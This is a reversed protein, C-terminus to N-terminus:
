LRRGPGAAEEPVPPDPRRRDQEPTSTELLQKGLALMTEDEVPAILAPDALMRERDKALIMEASPPGSWEATISASNLMIEVKRRRTYSVLLRLRGEERPRGVPVVRGTCCAPRTSRSRPTSSWVWIPCTSAVRPSTPPSASAPMATVCPRCPRSRQSQTLEGSLGVVSFGRERLSSTLREVRERTNAFVLAGPAEFYRLVNVVALEVEHPPSM